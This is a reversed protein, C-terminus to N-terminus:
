TCVKGDVRLSGKRYVSFGSLSQGTVIDMRPHAIDPTWYPKQSKNGSTHNDKWVM